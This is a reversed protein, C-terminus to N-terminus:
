RKKSKPQDPTGSQLAQMEGVAQKEAFHRLNNMSTDIMRGLDFKRSLDLQLLKKGKETRFILRWDGTTLLTITGKVTASTTFKTGTYQASYALVTRWQRKSVESVNFLMADLKITNTKAM